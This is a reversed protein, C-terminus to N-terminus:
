IKLHPKIEPHNVNTVILSNYIKFALLKMYYLNEKNYIIFLLRNIIFYFILVTWYTVFAHKKIKVYIYLTSILIVVKLSLPNM